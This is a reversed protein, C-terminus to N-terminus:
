KLTMSSSQNTNTKETGSTRFAALHTGMSWLNVLGNVVNVAPPTSSSIVAQVSRGVGATSFLLSMFDRVPGNETDSLAAFAFSSVAMAFGAEFGNVEPNTLYDYASIGFAVLNLVQARACHDNRSNFLSFPNFM